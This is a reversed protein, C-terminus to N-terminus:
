QLWSYKKILPLARWSNGCGWTDGANTQSLVILLLLYILHEDILPNNKIPWLSAWMLLLLASGGIAALRLGIGLLLAMGLLLLAGMFIWDVWAQGALIHFYPSPSHALFGATPSGGALWAATPLTSYGLGWIKDLFAWLFLWGLSIRLLALTIKM